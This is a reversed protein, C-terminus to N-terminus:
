KLLLFCKKGLGAQPHPQIFASLVTRGKEEEEFIETNM